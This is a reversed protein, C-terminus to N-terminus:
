FFEVRLFGHSYPLRNKLVAPPFNDLFYFLPSSDELFPFRFLFKGKAECTRKEDGKKKWRRWNKKWRREQIKVERAACV